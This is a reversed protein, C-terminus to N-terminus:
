EPQVFLFVSDHGQIPDTVIQKYVLGLDKHNWLDRVSASATINLLSLPIIVTQKEGFARPLANIVLVAWAGGKMPKGWVQVLGATLPNYHRSAICQSCGAVLTGDAKFTYKQNQGQNCQYPQVVPGSYDYVDMCDGNYGVITEQQTDYTFTQTSAGSCPNLRVEDAENFDLCSANNTIIKKTADYAWGKQSPDSTNCPVAWTFLEVSSPSPNYEMLLM